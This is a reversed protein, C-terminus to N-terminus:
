YPKKEKDTLAQYKKIKYIKRLAFPGFNINVRYNIIKKVKVYGKSINSFYSYFYKFFIDHYKEKNLKYLPVKKFRESIIKNVEIKLIKKLHQNKKTNTPLTDFKTRLWWTLFKETFSFDVYIGLKGKENFTRDIEGGDINLLLNNDSKNKNKFNFSFGEEFTLRSESSSLQSDSWRNFYKDVPSELVYKLDDQSFVYNLYNDTIGTIKLFHFIDRKLEATSDDKKWELITKNGKKSSVNHEFFYECYINKFDSEESNSAISLPFNFGLNDSIKRCINNECAVIERKEKEGLSFFYDLGRQIFLPSFLYHELLDFRKPDGSWSCFNRFNRVGRSLDQERVTSESFLFNNDKIKEKRRFFSKEMFNILQRKSIVSINQSCFKNVLNQAFLKKEDENFELLNVSDSLSGIIKKLGFYRFSAIFSKLANM